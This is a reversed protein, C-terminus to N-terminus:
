NKKEYALIYMLKVTLDIIINDFLIIISKVTCTQRFKFPAQILVKMPIDGRVSSNKFLRLKKRGHSQYELVAEYGPLTVKQPLFATHRWKLGANVPNLQAKIQSACHLLDVLM